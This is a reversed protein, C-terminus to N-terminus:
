RSLEDVCWQRVGPRVAEQELGTEAGVITFAQRPSTIGLIGELGELHRDRGCARSPVTGLQEVVRGQSLLCLGLQTPAADDLWGAPGLELSRARPSAAM